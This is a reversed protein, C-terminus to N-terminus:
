YHLKFSPLPGDTNVMMCRGIGTPIHAHGSTPSHEPLPERVKIPVAQQCRCGGWPQERRGTWVGRARGGGLPGIELQMGNGQRKTEGAGEPVSM